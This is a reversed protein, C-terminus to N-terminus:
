EKYYMTGDAHAYCVFNGMMDFLKILPTGKKYYDSAAIFPIYPFIPAIETPAPYGYLYLGYLNGKKLIFGARLDKYKYIKDFEAPIIVTNDKSEKIGFKGNDVSLYDDKSSLNKVGFEIRERKIPLYHRQTVIDATYINLSKNGQIDLGPIKRKPTGRDSMMFFEIDDSDEYEETDEPLYVSRKAKLTVKKNENYTLYIKRGIDYKDKYTFSRENHSVQRTKYYSSHEFFTRTIRKLKKNYLFLSTFYDHTIAEVLMEDSDDDGEIIHLLFVQAYDKDLIANGELDYLGRAQIYKSRSSNNPNVISGIPSILNNDIFYNQYHQNKLVIKDNIIFSSKTTVNDIINYAMFYSNKENKKGSFVPDIRDFQPQIVLKGDFDSIGFQYGVRYPVYARQAQLFLPLLLISLLLIHKQM